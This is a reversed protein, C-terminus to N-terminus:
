KRVGHGRPYRGKMWADLWLYGTLLTLVLISGAFVELGLVVREQRRALRQAERDLAALEVLDLPRVAYVWTKYRITEGGADTVEEEGAKGEGNLVHRKVYDEDPHWTLLPPNQARLVANIRKIIEEIGDSKAKDLTKKGYGTIETPWKSIATELLSNSPAAQLICATAFFMYLGATSISKMKKDGTLRM